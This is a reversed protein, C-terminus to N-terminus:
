DRRGLTAEADAPDPKLRAPEAAGALRNWKPVLVKLL